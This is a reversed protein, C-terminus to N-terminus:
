FDKSILFFLIWFEVRFMIVLKFIVKEGGDLLMSLIKYLFFFFM